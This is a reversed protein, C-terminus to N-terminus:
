KTNCRPLRFFAREFESLLEAERALPDPCLEWGYHTARRTQADLKGLFHEMLRGRITGGDATGPARGYYILEDGDWLAYVGADDPAGALVTRTFRYRRAPVGAGRLWRLAAREDRLARLNVGHQRAVVELNEHAAHLEDTDPVMAIQRAFSFLGKAYGDLGYDDPRFTARSQRVMVLIKPQEFKRSAAELALLFERMEEPTERAVLSAYLYGERPEISFRM